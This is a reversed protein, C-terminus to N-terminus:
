AITPSLGADRIRRATAEQAEQSPLLRTPPQMALTPLESAVLTPRTAADPALSACGALALAVLLPAVVRTPAALRTPLADRM